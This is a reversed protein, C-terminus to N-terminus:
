DVWKVKDSDLLKEYSEPMVLGDEVAKEGAAELEIIRRCRAIVTDIEAFPVVVVGDRDAVIM